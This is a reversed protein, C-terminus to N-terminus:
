PQASVQKPIPVAFKTSSLALILFPVAGNKIVLFVVNDLDSTLFVCCLGALFPFLLVRTDSIDLLIMFRRVRAVVLGFVLFALPVGLPGFNLMVEGALGYVRSSVFKGPVYTGAGYQLETGEKVKSLPREGWITKPILIAVAGVYTRGFAYDYNSERSTIRYLLFSQIDSRAFDALLTTELTRGTKESAYARSQNSTVAELGDLGASKYFGYLYMFTVLLVVGVLVFKMSLPRIYFHIIGAAWFVAWVTNSRSGHLGFVMQLLFFTLLVLPPVIWSKSIEKQNIYVTLAILAIIPFSESIMLVWGMGELTETGDTFAQMFGLIGGNRAFVWTQLLGAVLLSLAALLFFRKRQLLWVTRKNCRPLDRVLRNRSVRYCLLGLVNLCAMGGLWNRWDPPADVYAMWYDLHVHLLPALFFFHLGVLGLLGVPDFTSVRGRFWDIADAGIITGCLLLPLVFWHRCQESTLLFVLVAVLCLHFSIAASTLGNHTSRVNTPAPLVGRLVESM